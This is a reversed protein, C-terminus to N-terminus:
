LDAPLSMTQIFRWTQWELASDHYDLLVDEDVTRITKPEARVTTGKM